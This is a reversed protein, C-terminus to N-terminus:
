SKPKEHRLFEGNRIGIHEGNKVTIAGNVIVHEIGKPHQRGNQVTAVDEITNFDLITIDAKFGEKLIGRDPIQLQEAPLSTMKKIATELSIWNEERVWRQIVRPFAGYNRPHVNQKQNPVVIGDTCACVYPRKFLPLIGNEEDKTVMTFIIGGEEDRILDLLGDLLNKRNPYYKKVAQHLTMLQLEPRVLTSLITVKKALIGWILKKILGKPILKLYWPANDLFIGAIKQFMEEKIRERTVPNTLNETFNDFVWTNFAIFALPTVADNYVTVDATLDLGEAQSDEMYEILKPTMKSADGGVVSWHSIHGRCNAEKAIRFVEAMGIDMVHAGENRMHSTYMGDYEAVIKSLEILEETKTGSGPVYALGTSIGFAGAEMEKRIIEQMQKIQEPTAPEESIGCVYARINGQPIFMALNISSKTEEFKKAFEDIEECLEPNVALLRTALNAYYKRVIDNSPSLGFGCHGGTVTTCGQLLYEKLDPVELLTLDAHCHIDIFGPCVIKGEADIVEAGEKDLSDAIKVISDGEILIDGKYQKEGTGDVISGNKILISMIKM